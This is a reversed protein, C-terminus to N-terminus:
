ASPAEKDGPLRFFAAAKKGWAREKFAEFPSLSDPDLAKLSKAAMEWVVAADPALLGLGHLSALAEGPLLGLRYPPDMFVLDFPGLPKLRELGLPLELSLVKLSDARAPFLATNKLATNVSEESNDCFVASVGGRSVAELGMQGTGCYLDLVRAGKELGDLMSFIAEKVMSQTPRFGPSKPLHLKLGRKEGSSIRVTV